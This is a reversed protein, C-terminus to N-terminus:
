GVEFISISAGSLNVPCSEGPYVYYLTVERGNEGAIYIRIRGKGVLVVNRCSYGAELLSRGDGAEFPNSAELLELRQEPGSNVYFAYNKLIEHASRDNSELTESFRDEVMADM